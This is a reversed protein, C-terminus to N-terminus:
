GRKELELCHQEAFKEMDEMIQFDVFGGENDGAYFNYIEQLLKTQAIQMMEIIDCASIEIDDVGYLPCFEGSLSCSVTKQYNTCYKMAEILIKEKDRNM